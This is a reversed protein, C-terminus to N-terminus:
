LRKVEIMKDGKTIKHIINQGKIVNGFVAYKGDLSPVKSKLIYFQSGASDPDKLRAMGVAHKINRLKRNVELRITWGPGGTGTGVPDGGQIGWVEIRHFDLGNYFGSDVLKLFNRVTAPMLDAKLSIVMTGKVTRVSVLIESTKKPTETNNTGVTVKNKVALQKKIVIPLIVVVGLIIIGVIALIVTASM